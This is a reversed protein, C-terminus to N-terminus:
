LNLYKYKENKAYKIAEELTNFRQRVNEKIKRPKEHYNGNDDWNSM